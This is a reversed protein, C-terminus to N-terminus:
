ILISKLSSTENWLSANWGAETAAQVNERSDDILLLSRPELGVRMVVREFFELSPKKAALQASYFIGDFQHALGLNDMLYNARLHEQNSALYIRSGGTRIEQLDNLLNHDLRSDQQFWYAVLEEASLHPAISRLVPRLRQMLDARGVVIDSWHPGFFDRQLVSPSLKLDKELYASWHKGDKPRGKILVGDVDIMVAKLPNGGFTAM